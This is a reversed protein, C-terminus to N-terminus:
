NKQKKLAYLLVAIVIGYGVVKLIVRNKHAQLTMGTEKEYDSMGNDGAASMYTNSIEEEKKVFHARSM